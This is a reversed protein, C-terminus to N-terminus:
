SRKRVGRLINQLLRQRAYRIRSDSLLGRVALRTIADADAQWHILDTKLCKIGQFNLQQAIPMAMAGFQISIKM